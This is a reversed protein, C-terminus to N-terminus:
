WTPNDEWEKQLRKWREDEYQKQRKAREDLFAKVEGSELRDFIVGKAEELTKFRQKGGLNNMSIQFGAGTEAIKFSVQKQKIRHVAGDLVWRTSEIFRARRARFKTVSEMHNSATKTDTLNDCCDTGVRLAVWKPHQIYFAHRIDTGCYECQGSLDGLDEEGVYQWGVLPPIKGHEAAHCGKCLTVVCGYPYDWPAIGTLYQKHHVQLVAGESASRGCSTCLHGDRELIEARFEQWLKSPGAM